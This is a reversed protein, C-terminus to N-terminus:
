YCWCGTSDCKPDKDSPCCAACCDGFSDLHSCSGGPCNQVPPAECEAVAIKGFSILDTGLKIDNKAFSVNLMMLVGFIMGTLGIFIKKKM